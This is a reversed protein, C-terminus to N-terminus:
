RFTSGFSSFNHDDSKANTVAEVIAANVENEDADVEIPNLLCSVVINYSRKTFRVQLSKDFEFVHLM